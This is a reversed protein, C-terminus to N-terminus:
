GRRVPPLPWSTVLGHSSSCNEKGDMGCAVSFVATTQSAGVRLRDGAGRGGGGPMGTDRGRHTGLAKGLLGVGLAM